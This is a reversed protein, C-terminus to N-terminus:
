SLGAAESEAPLPVSVQVERDIAARVVASLKALLDFRQQWGEYQMVKHAEILHGWHRQMSEVDHLLTKVGDAIFAIRHGISGDLPALALLEATEFNLDVSKFMAPFFDLLVRRDGDGFVLQGAVADFTDDMSQIKAAIRAAVLSASRRERREERGWAQVSIWLSVAIAALTGSAALGNILLGVLDKGDVAAPVIPALLTCVGWFVLALAFAYLAWDRPSKGDRPM